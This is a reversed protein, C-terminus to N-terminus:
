LAVKDVSTKYLLFVNVEESEVLKGSSPHYLKKTEQLTTLVEEDLEHFIRESDVFCYTRVLISPQSASLYNVVQETEKASCSSVKELIDSLSLYFQQGQPQNAIFELVGLACDQLGFMALDKQVSAIIEPKLNM